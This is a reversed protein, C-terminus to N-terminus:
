HPVAVVFHGIAYGVAAGVFVDSPFHTQDTIRSFSALAALGYATIPVWRKHKYRSSYVAAVAFASTAHTSPFSGPDQAPGSYKFWTDRFNGDGPIQVPFRRGTIAKLATSVIFGHAAAELALEGTGRFYNRHTLLGAAYTAAPIAVIMAAMPRKTLFGSKFRDFEPRGFYPAVHPDLAVLGITGSTVALVASGHQHAHVPFSWIRAEERLLRRTISPRPEDPPATPEPLAQIRASVQEQAWAISLSAVSAGVMLFALPWRM